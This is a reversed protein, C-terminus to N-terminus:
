SNPNHYWDMQINDILRCMAYIFMEWDDRAYRLTGTLLASRPLYDLTERNSITNM